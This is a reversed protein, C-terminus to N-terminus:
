SVTQVIDEDGLLGGVLCSKGQGTEGVIGIRMPGSVYPSASKEAEKALPDWLSPWHDKGLKIAEILSARIKGAQVEADRYRPDHLAVGEPKHDSHPDHRNGSGRTLLTSLQEDDKILEFVDTPLDRSRAGM